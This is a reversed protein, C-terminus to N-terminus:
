RTFFYVAGAVLYPIMAVGLVGIGQLLGKMGRTRYLYHPLVVPWAFFVFTEYEFPAEIRRYRRDCSV